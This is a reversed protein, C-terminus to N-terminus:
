TNQLQEVLNALGVHLLALRAADRLLNAGGEEGLSRQLFLSPREAFLSM